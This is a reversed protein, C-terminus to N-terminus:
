CTEDTGTPSRQEAFLYALKEEEEALLEAIIRRKLLDNESELLGWYYRINLEVTTRASPSM